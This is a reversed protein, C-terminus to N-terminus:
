SGSRPPWRGPLDDRLHGTPAKVNSLIANPIAAFRSLLPHERVQAKVKEFSMVNAIRRDLFEWTDLHEESTDGLWFLLTSGYVGSLIARKSYWNADDSTDGLANWIQDSTGWVLKAGEAAHQPMSFLSLGRRVVEVDQIAEIRFRVLAAVKESYRLGDLGGAGARELMMADGRRHYAAALGVAGRPYAARADEASVGVDAFAAAFSAECWGDFPVHALAADLLREKIDDTMM